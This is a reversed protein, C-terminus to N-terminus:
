KILIHRNAARTALSQEARFEWSLADRGNSDNYVGNAAGNMWTEMERSYGDLTKYNIELLPAEVGTKSDKITDMPIMVGKFIDQGAKGLLKPDNLLKWTHFHYDRGGHSLSKFDLSLAMDASNNFMGYSPVAGGNLAAALRNIKNLQTNKVYCAYETSGGEQDLVEGLDEIDNLDEIYGGHVTGRSELAAFYGEAGNLNLNTLTSNTYSQGTILGMEIFDNFRKRTDMEGKWYFAQKGNINVWAKNTMQSGTASFKDKVIIYKNTRKVINSEIFDTPQNTGQAYTNYLISASLTEGSTIGVPWTGAPAITFTSSTRATCQTIVFQGGKYIGVVDNVRVKHSALTVTLSTSVGASLTAGATGDATNHLRVDEWWQMEDNTGGSKIAGVMYLLGYVTSVAQDGYTMVLRERNDPMNVENIYNGLSIYGSIDSGSQYFNNPSFDPAQQIAM